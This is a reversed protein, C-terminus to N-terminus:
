SNYYNKKKRKKKEQKRWRANTHSSFATAMLIAVGVKDDKEIINKCSNNSNYNNNNNRNNPWSSDTQNKNKKQLELVRVLMM